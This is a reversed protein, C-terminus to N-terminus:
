NVNFSKFNPSGLHSKRHSCSKFEAIVLNEVLMDLRLGENFIMDEYHVPLDVQRKVFGAKKLEYEMCAEYIKELLGPGSTKHVKYAPHVIAKGIEEERDSLRQFSM